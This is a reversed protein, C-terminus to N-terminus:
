VQEHGKRNIICLKKQKKVAETLGGDNYGVYGSSGILKNVSTKDAYESMDFRVLYKEDGFIEKALIKAM